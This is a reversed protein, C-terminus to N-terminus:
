RFFSLSFFTANLLNIRLLYLEEIVKYSGGSSKQKKKDVIHIINDM